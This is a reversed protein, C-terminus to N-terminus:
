RSASPAAIRRAISSTWSASNRSTSVPSTLPPGGGQRGVALPARIARVRFRAGPRPSRSSFRPDSLIGQTMAKVDGMQDSGASEGIASAIARRIAPGSGSASVSSSARRIASAWTSRSRTRPRRLRQDCPQQGIRRVLRELDSVAVGASSSSQDHQACGPRVTRSRHSQLSSKGQPVRPPRLVRPWGLPCIKGAQRAQGTRAVRKTSVCLRLGCNRRRALM